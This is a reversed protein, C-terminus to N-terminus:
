NSAHGPATVAPAPLGNVGKGAPTAPDGSGPNAPTALGAQPNQPDKASSANANQPDKASSANANQPDKASSANANQPDKASSANANQPRAHESNGHSAAGASQGAASHPSSGSGVASDKVASPAGYGHRSAGSPNPRGSPLDVARLIGAVPSPLSGTAAEAASLGLLVPAAIAVAALAVKAPRSRSGPRSGAKASRAPGNTAKSGAMVLAPRDSATPEIADLTLGHRGSAMLTLAEERVFAPPTAVPQFAAITGPGDLVLHKFDEAPLPPSFLYGQMVDCGQDRLFSLQAENEVGEAVVELGLSHAMAIVALVIAADGEQSHIREVFSKDIKLRDIPFRTLYSLSSYGTGFDDISCHVGMDKLDELEAAARGTSDFALSETLELELQDPALGTRRLAAAVKQAVPQQFFQRPSL